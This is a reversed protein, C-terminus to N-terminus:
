VLLSGDKPCFMTSRRYLTYYHSCTWLGYRSIGLTPYGSCQLGLRRIGVWGFSTSTLLLSRIMTTTVKQRSTHVPPSKGSGSSGISSQIQGGPAFCSYMWKNLRIRVEALYCWLIGGNLAMGSLIGRLNRKPLGLANMFAPISCGGSTLDRTM